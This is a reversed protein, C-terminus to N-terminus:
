QAHLDQHQSGRRRQTGYQHHQHVTPQVLLCPAKDSTGTHAAPSTLWHFCSSLFPFIWQIRPWNYMYLMTKGRAGNAARKHETHSLFCQLLQMLNSEFCLQVRHIVVVICLSMWKLKPREAKQQFCTIHHTELYCPTMRQALSSTTESAALQPARDLPLMWAVQRWAWDTSSIYTCRFYTNYLTGTCPRTYYNWTCTRM